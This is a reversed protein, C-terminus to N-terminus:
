KKWQFVLARESRGTYRADRDRRFCLPETVHRSVALILFSPSSPSSFSRNCSSIGFLWYARQYLINNIANCITRTHIVVAMRIQTCSSGRSRSDLFNCAIEQDQISPDHIPDIRILMAGRRKRRASTDIRREAKVRRPCSIRSLVAYFRKWCPSASQIHM